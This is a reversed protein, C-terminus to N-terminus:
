RIGRRRKLLGRPDEFTWLSKALKVNTEASSLEVVTTEGQADIVAWSVLSLAGTGNERFYVTITGLETREPDVAHLAVIDDIGGPAVEVRAGYTALDVANGLLVRLPTDKVPWKTVQEIEEDVLNLTKGDSVVLIPTEDSYDFRIRGPRELYLKGEAVLGGPSRQTFNAKLSNVTNMYNQIKQFAAFRPNQDVVAEELEPLEKTDQASLGASVFASVALM